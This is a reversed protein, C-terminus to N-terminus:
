EMIMSLGKELTALSIAGNARAILSGDAAVFYTAPISSVGYTMAADMDTDYYVPFTFGQKDVYAKAKEKTEQMGDTMNVIMFHVAEGHQEYAKQFDPMESKCPGCWSAWFNVVVPKGQMSSLSVANGEMDYVTFDPAAPRPTATPAATADPDATPEESPVATTQAVLNSLEVKDKLSNYLFGAAVLLVVLLLSLWIWYANKKM